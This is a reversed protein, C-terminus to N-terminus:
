YDVGLKPEFPFCSSFSLVRYENSESSFDVFFARGDDHVLKVAPGRDAPLDELTWGEATGYRARVADVIAARDAEGTLSIRLGGPWMYEDPGCSLLPAETVRHVEGVLDSPVFTELDEQVEITLEKAAELTIDPTM